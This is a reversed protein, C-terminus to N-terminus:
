YIEVYLAKIWGIRNDETKIKVCYIGNFNTIEILEIKTWYKLDFLINEENSNDYINYYTGDHSYILRAKYKLDFIIDEYNM